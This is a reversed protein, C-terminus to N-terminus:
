LGRGQEKEWQEVSVGKILLWLGIIIEFLIMPLAFVIPASFDPLLITIFVHFLLLLFSIMGFVALIGPIYKSKFFLYCFLAGGLCMFVDLVLQSTTNVDLFFGVLAHQQETGFATGAAGFDGGNLLLLVLLYFLVTLGGFIVEGFKWFLALLALNKNVPKLLVYQALSLIMVVGTSLILFIAAAFRFRLGNAMINNATAAADGPVLLELILFALFLSIIVLLLYMLGAIRAAKRQSTNNIHNTM